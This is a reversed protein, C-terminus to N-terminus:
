AFVLTPGLSRQAAPGSLWLLRAGEKGEQSGGAWLGGMGARQGAVWGWLAAM